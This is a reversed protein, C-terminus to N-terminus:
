IGAASGFFSQPSAAIRWLPTNAINTGTEEAVSSFSRTIFADDPRSYIGIFSLDQLHRGQSNSLTFRVIVDDQELYAAMTRTMEKLRDIIDARNAYDRSRVDIDLNFGWHAVLEQPSVSYLRLGSQPDIVRSNDSRRDGIPGTWLFIQTPTQTDRDLEEPAFYGAAKGALADQIIGQAGGWVVSQALAQGNDVTFLRTEGNQRTFQLQWEISRNLTGSSRFRQGLVTFDGLSYALYAEYRRLYNVRNTHGIFFDTCGFFSFAL